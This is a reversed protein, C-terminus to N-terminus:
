RLVATVTNEYLGRLRYITQEGSRLINWDLEM